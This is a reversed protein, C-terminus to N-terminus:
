IVRFKRLKEIQEGDIKTENAEGTYETAFRGARAGSIAAGPFAYVGGYRAMADGCAYLGSLSTECKTNTIVGGCMAITGYFAPAWEM